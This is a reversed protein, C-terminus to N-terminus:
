RALLLPLFALGALGALATVITARHSGGARRWGLIIAAGVVEALLGVLGAEPGFGGGTLWDAGTADVALVAPSQLGSVPFGFLPGQAFNWSWHLAIPLWLRGTALYGWALLLGAAVLDLLALPSANPNFGHLGAFLVSSAAVGVTPNWARSLLQLLFGRALLEESVAVGTFTLAGFLLGDAAIAGPRVSAWGAAVEIALVLAFLLPGLAAGVVLERLWTAEFRLGMVALSPSGWRRLLVASLVTALVAATSAAVGAATTAAGATTLDTMSFSTTGILLSALQMFPVILLLQLVLWLLLFAVLLALARRKGIPPATALLVIGPTFRAARATRRLSTPEM